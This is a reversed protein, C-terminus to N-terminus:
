KSFTDCKAHTDCGGAGEPLGDQEDADDDSEELMPSSSEYDCYAQLSSSWVPEYSPFGGEKLWALTAKWCYDAVTPADFDGLYRGRGIHAELFSIHKPIWEDVLWDRQKTRIDDSVDDLGWNQPYMHCQLRSVFDTHLELLEDIRLSHVPNKAYTRTVKGAYRLIAKSQAFVETGIQLVPLQRYPLREKMTDFVDRSVRADEYVVGHDDLLNRVCQVIGSVDFYTLVLRDDTAFLLSHLQEL